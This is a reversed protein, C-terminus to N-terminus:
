TISIWEVQMQHHSIVIDKDLLDYIVKISDPKQDISKTWISLDFVTQYATFTGQTLTNELFLMKTSITGTKKALVMGPRMELVYENGENDTFILQECSIKGVSEFFTTEVQDLTMSFRIKVTKM